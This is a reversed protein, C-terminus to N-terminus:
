DRLFPRLRMRTEHAPATSGDPYTGRFYDKQWGAQAAASGPRTLDALFHRRGERWAGHAARLEDPADGIPAIRPAFRELDGRRQPILVCVPDGKAFRVWRRRRLFKWNMTFAAPSWDTEVIGELASIKRRPANAPGRVSLNFGPPTRFLYPLNWTIIGSGFHSVPSFSSWSDGYDFEVADLGAGGNWRARVDANNLVVWGAQNAMLLPLCRNAFRDPTSDMWERRPSAPLLTFGHNSHLEYAIFEMMHPEATM